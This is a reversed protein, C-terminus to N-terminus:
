GHRSGKPLPPAEASAVQRARGTRVVTSASAVGICALALWQVLQLHESLLLTGALGAVAPELSQLVGVTRPPLRRLAALELSYPLVASLLAVVLGNLLVQPELLTTGSQAAGFPATLVAAWLVALALPGGGASRAGTRRSLVLYLAMSVGGGLALLVGPLPFHASAPAHFLWVGLGALAALLLDLLRRSALLALTVPGLLQLSIALGLPLYALAPYILNMGAIATGFGLVLALEARSRPVAPRHVALLVVAALGLRLAVVGMPEVVGFMQKGLAQGFQVSVVAGLVLMLAAGESKGNEMLWGESKAVMCDM